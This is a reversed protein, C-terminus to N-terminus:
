GLQTAGDESISGKPVPKRKMRVMSRNGAGRSGCARLMVEAMTLGPETGTHKPSNQQQSTLLFLSFSFPVRHPSWALDGEATALSVLILM